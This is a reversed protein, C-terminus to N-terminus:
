LILSAASVTKARMGTKQFTSSGCYFAHETVHTIYNTVIYRCAHVFIDLINEELYHDTERLITHTVM